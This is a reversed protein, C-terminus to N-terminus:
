FHKDLFSIEIELFFFVVFPFGRGKQWSLTLRNRAESWVALVKGKREGWSM